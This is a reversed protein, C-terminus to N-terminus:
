NEESRGDADIERALGVAHALAAIFRQVRRKVVVTQHQARDAIRQREARRQDDALGLDALDEVLDCLDDFRHRLVLGTMAPSTGAMLAKRKELFLAHIGLVLGPM